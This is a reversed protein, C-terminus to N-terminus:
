LKLYIEFVIIVTTVVIFNFMPYLGTIIFYFCQISFLYVTGHVLGFIDCFIQKLNVRTKRPFPPINSPKRIKEQPNIPINVIMVSKESDIPIKQIKTFNPIKHPKDELPIKEQEKEIIVSNGACDVGDYDDDDDGGGDGGSPPRHMPCTEPCHNRRLFSHFHGYVKIDSLFFAAPLLGLMCMLGPYLIWAVCLSWYVGFDWAVTGLYFLYVLSATEQVDIVLLIAPCFLTLYAALSLIAAKGRLSKNELDKFPLLQTFFIVLAYTLLLNFVNDALWVLVKHAKPAAQFVDSYGLLIRFLHNPVYNHFTYFLLQLNDQMLIGKEADNQCYINLVKTKEDMTKVCRDGHNGILSIRYDLNDSVFPAHLGFHWRADDYSIRIHDKGLSGTKYTLHERIYVFTTDLRDLNKGGFLKLYFPLSSIRTRQTITKLDLPNMPFDTVNWKVAIRFGDTAITINSGPVLQKLLGQGKSEKSNFEVGMPVVQYQFGFYDKLKLVIQNYEAMTTDRNHSTGNRCTLLISQQANLDFYGEAPYAQNRHGQMQPTVKLHVHDKVKEAVDGKRNALAGMEDNYIIDDHHATHQTMFHQTMDEVPRVVPSVFVNVDTVSCSVISAGANANVASVCCCLTLFFIASEM